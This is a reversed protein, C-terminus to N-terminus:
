KILRKITKYHERVLEINGNRVREHESWNTAIYGYRKLIGNVDVVFENFRDGLENNIQPAINVGRKIISEVRELKYERSNLYAERKADEIDQLRKAEDRALADNFMKLISKDDHNDERMRRVVNANFKSSVIENINM